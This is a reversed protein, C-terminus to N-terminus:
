EGDCRERHHYLRHKVVYRHVQPPVLEGIPLGKALRERLVTASIPFPEHNLLYILREGSPADPVAAFLEVPRLRPHLVEPMRAVLEEGWVTARHLVVLHAEDVLERWRHWTAIQSFSDSGMLFYLSAEGCARRFARLTDVTYTPAPMGQEIDSVVFREYPQTALALMAFRHSFPTLPEGQKHPPDAAPIFALEEFHFTELAKVAPLLHGFHVPDFTGGFIGVRRV